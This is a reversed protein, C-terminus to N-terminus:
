PNYCSYLLTSPLVEHHHISGCSLSKGAVVRTTECMTSSYDHIRIKITINSSSGLLLKLKMRSQLFCDALRFREGVVCLGSICFGCQRLAFCIIIIASGHCLASCKTSGRSLVQKEAQYFPEQITFQATCATTPAPRMTRSFPCGATSLSRTVDGPPVVIAPTCERSFEPTLAAM